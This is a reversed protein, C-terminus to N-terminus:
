FDKWNKELDCGLVATGTDSLMKIKMQQISGAKRIMLEAEMVNKKILGEYFAKIRVTTIEGAVDPGKLIEVTAKDPNVTSHVCKIAKTRFIEAYNVAEAAFAWSGSLLVGFIAGAALKSSTKAFNMVHSM